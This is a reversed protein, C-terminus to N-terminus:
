SHALVVLEILDRPIWRTYNEIARRLADDDSVQQSFVQTVASRLDHGRVDLFWGPYTLTLGDSFVIEVPTTDVVASIKPAIASTVDNVLRQLKERLAQGQGHQLDTLTLGGQLLIPNPPRSRLNLCSSIFIFIPDCLYNEISHRRTVLMLRHISGDTDRDCIARFMGAEAASGLDDLWRRVKQKGGPLGRSAGQELLNGVPLFVLSISPLLSQSAAAQAVLSYLRVDDQDEVLVMRFDATIVGFLNACLFNLANQRTTPEIRPARRRMLIVNDNPWLAVTAPSHSALCIHTNQRDAIIELVEIFSRALTPNLLADLDDLLLLGTRDPPRSGFNLAGLALLIREGSSLQDFNLDLDGKRIKAQFQGYETPCTVSYEGLGCTALIAEFVNWPPPGFRQRFKADSIAIPKGSRLYHLPGYVGAAMEKAFYTIFINTLDLGSNLGVHPERFRIWPMSPAQQHFTAIVDALAPEELCGTYSAIGVQYDASPRPSTRRSAAQTNVLRSVEVQYAKILELYEEASCIAASAVLEGVLPDNLPVFETACLDEILARKSGFVKDRADSLSQRISTNSVAAAASAGANQARQLTTADGYTLTLNYDHRMRPLAGDSVFHDLEIAQLLQSKGAGNEGVILTLKHLELPPFDVISLYATKQGLRLM